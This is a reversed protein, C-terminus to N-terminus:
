RQESMVPFAIEVRWKQSPNASKMGAGAVAAGGGRSAAV